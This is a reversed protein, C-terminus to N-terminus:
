APHASLSFVVISQQGNSVNRPNLPDDGGEWGVVFVIDERGENETQQRVQIGELTHGLRNQVSQRTHINSSSEILHTLKLRESSHSSKSQAKNQSPIAKSVVGQSIYPGFEQDSGCQKRVAFGLRRYQFFSQMATSPSNDLTALTLM